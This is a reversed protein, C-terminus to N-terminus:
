IELVYHLICHYVALRWKRHSGIIDYNRKEEPLTPTGQRVSETKVAVYRGTETDLARYVKGFTGEGLLDNRGALFQDYDGFKLITDDDDAEKLAREAVFLQGPAGDFAKGDLSNELGDYVSDFHLSFHDIFYSYSDNQIHNPISVCHGWSRM